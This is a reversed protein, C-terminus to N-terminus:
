LISSISHGLRQIMTPQSRLTVVPLIIMATDDPTSDKIGPAQTEPSASLSNNWNSVQPQAVAPVALFAIRQTPAQINSSSDNAVSRIAHHISTPDIQVTAVQDPAASATAIAVTATLTLLVSWRAQTTINMINM